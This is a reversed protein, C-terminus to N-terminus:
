PNYLSQVPHIGIDFSSRAAGPKTFPVDILYSQDRHSRDGSLVLVGMLREIPKVLQDSKRLTLRFGTAIPVLKQPAANEIQSEALPFFVAHTVQHGLKATLVFSDNADAVSFRWNAPAARPLSKRAANFLEATRADPVAPQSKIPLVLSLEAKGPICMEHSCVLLTVEADLRTTGQAALRSDVHM